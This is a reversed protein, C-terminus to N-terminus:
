RELLGQAALMGLNHEVFAGMAKEAAEAGLPQGAEDRLVMDHEELTAVLARALGERDLSGDM